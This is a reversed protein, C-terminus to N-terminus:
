LKVIKGTTIGKPTRARVFYVGRPQGTLDIKLTGQKAPTIFNGPLSTGSVNSVEVSCDNYPLELYFIGSSPNPHINLRAPGSEDIGPNNLITLLISDHVICPGSIVECSIIWTGSNFDTGHITIAYTTDGTSWQYHDFGPGSNLIISDKRYITTDNGIHIPPMPTVNVNVSDTMWCYNEDSVDLRYKGSQTVLLLSDFSTGNNWIYHAYGPPGHLVIASCVTTDTGLDFVPSPYNQFKALYIDHFLFYSQLTDPGFVSQTFFSGALIINKCNDLLLSTGDLDMNCETVFTKVLEGQPDFYGSLVESYYGIDFWTDDLKFKRNCTTAFYLNDGDLYLNFDMFDAYNLNKVIQYWVPQLEENMRVLIYGITDGQVFITDGAFFLTDQFYGSFFYDGGTNVLMNRIGFDLPIMRSKQINGNQDSKILFNVRYIDNLPPVPITDGEVIIPYATSGLFYINGDDGNFTKYGNTSSSLSRVEKRWSLTGNPDIKMFSFFNNMYSASDQGFYWAYMTEFNYGYHGVGVYINNTTDTSLGYFETQYTAWIHRTWLVKLDPSLKAIFVDPTLTDPGAVHEIVSDQIFVRGQFSGAVYINGENDTVMAPSRIMSYPPTYIDFAKRFKGSSDYIAVAVYKNFGSMGPHQFSTDPFFISDGYSIQTYINNNSDTSTATIQYLNGTHASVSTAWDWHWEQSFVSLPFVLGVIYILHLVLTKM